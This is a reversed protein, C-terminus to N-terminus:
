DKLREKQAILYNFILADLDEKRTFVGEPDNTQHFYLSAELAKWKPVAKNVISYLIKRRSARSKPITKGPWQLISSKLASLTTTAGVEALVTATEQYFGGSYNYYFDVFGSINGSGFEQANFLFFVKQETDNLRSLDAGNIVKSQLKMRTQYLLESTDKKEFIESYSLIPNRTFGYKIGTNQFFYKLLDFKRSCFVGEKVKNSSTRTKDCGFCMEIFEFAKGESNLFLIGNRPEYCSAYDMVRNEVKFNPDFGINYLIDTLEDTQGPSLIQSEIVRSYNINKNKVPIFDDAKFSILKIEKAKNFPYIKLRQLRNYKHSNFCENALENHLEERPTPEKFENKIKKNQGAAEFVSFIAIMFIILRM